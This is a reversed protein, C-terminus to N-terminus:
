KGCEKCTWGGIKANLIQWVVLLILWAGATVITLGIHVLLMISSTKNTNRMHITKKGCKSCSKLTEEIAKTVNHNRM